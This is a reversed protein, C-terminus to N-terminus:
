SIDDVRGWASITIDQSGDKQNRKHALVYAEMILIISDSLIGFLAPMPYVENNSLQFYIYGTEFWNGMTAVSYCRRRSSPNIKRKANSQNCEQCLEPPTPPLENKVKRGCHPCTYGQWTETEFVRRCAPCIILM